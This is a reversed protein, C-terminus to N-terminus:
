LANNENRSSKINMLNTINMSSGRPYKGWIKGKGAAMRWLRWAGNWVIGLLVSPKDTLAVWM